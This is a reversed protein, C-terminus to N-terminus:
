QSTHLIHKFKYGTPLQFLGARSHQEGLVYVVGRFSIGWQMVDGLTCIWKRGFLKACLPPEKVLLNFEKDILFAKM